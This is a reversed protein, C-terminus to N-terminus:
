DGGVTTNLGEGKSSSGLAILSLPDGAVKTAVGFELHANNNFLSMTAM